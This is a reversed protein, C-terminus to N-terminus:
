IPIVTHVPSHAKTIPIVNNLPFEKTVNDIVDQTHPSKDWWKVYWHRTLVDGEKVYQWKLIWPIKYHKVFHLLALLKANYADTKFVSTFYKFSVVLPGLFIEAIPGLQTWWRSFWLPLNANFHKDFNVFWSHSMNDNQHLM